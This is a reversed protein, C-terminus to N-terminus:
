YEGEINPDEFEDRLMGDDDYDEDEEIIEKAEQVSMRILYFKDETEFPLAKFTRKNADTFQILFNHFGTPYEYKVLKKISEDLTDYDKIVRPKQMTQIKNILFITELFPM